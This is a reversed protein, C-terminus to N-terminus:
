TNNSSSYSAILGKVKIDYVENIAEAMNANNKSKTFIRRAKFDEIGFVALGIGAGVYLGLQGSVLYGILGGIFSGGWVASLDMIGNHKKEDYATMVMGGLSLAICTYIQFDTFLGLVSAFLGNKLTRIYNFGAESEIKQFTNRLTDRQELIEQYDSCFRDFQYFDPGETPLNLSRALLREDVHGDITMMSDIKKVSDELVIETLM